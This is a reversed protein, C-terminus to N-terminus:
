IHGGLQHLIWTHGSKLFPQAGKCYLSWPNRSDSHYSRYTPIKKSWNLDLALAVFNHDLVLSDQLNTKWGLFVTSIRSRPLILLSLNRQFSKVSIRDIRQKLKCWRGVNNGTTLYNDPGWTTLSMIAFSVQCISALLHM